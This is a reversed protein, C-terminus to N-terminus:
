LQAPLLGWRIMGERIALANNKVFEPGPTTIM